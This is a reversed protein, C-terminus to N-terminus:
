MTCGLKIEVRDTFPNPGVEIGMKQVTQHEKVGVPFTGEENYDLAGNNWGGIVYVKNGVLGVAISQREYNMSTEYSWSNIIPDYVEVTTHYNYYDYGGIGYAMNEYSFGGLAYRATYMSAKATWTDAIPDYCEHVTTEGGGISTSGGYVYITDYIVACAPGMRGTPMSTKTQWPTGGATDASPDYEEVTAMIADTMDMGGIVYIKDGVVAMGYVYRPTPMSTKTTWSDTLPAYEEVVGSASSGVWGGIAYIKGNVVACGIHARETSMETRTSWSDAVPDYIYNTKYRNGSSDRGGIIYITDNIVACGSGSLRQPLSAKTTWTISQSLMSSLLMVILLQM